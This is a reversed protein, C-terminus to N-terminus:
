QVDQVTQLVIVRDQLADALTDPVIYDFGKSVDYTHKILNANSERLAAFPWAAQTPLSSIHVFVNRNM